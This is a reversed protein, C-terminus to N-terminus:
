LLDIVNVGQFTSYHNHVNQFKELKGRAEIQWKRKTREQNSQKERAKRSSWFSFKRPTGEANLLTTERLESPTWEPNLQFIFLPYSIYLYPIKHKGHSHFIVMLIVMLQTVKLWNICLLLKFFTSIILMTLRQLISNIEITFHFTTHSLVMALALFM